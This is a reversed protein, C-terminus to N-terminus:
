GTLPRELDIVGAGAISVSEVPRENRTELKNIARLAGVGKVVRGFAVAKHNLWPLPAFTIFFQSSNTHAGDCAMALVGPSDFKVAFSEDPFVGGSASSGQDGRGTFDGGQM